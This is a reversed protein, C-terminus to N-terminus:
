AVRCGVIEGYGVFRWNWVEQGQFIIYYDWDETGPWTPRTARDERSPREDGHNHSHFMGTVVIDPNNLVMNQFEHDMAFNHEPNSHVNPIPILFEDNGGPAKIGQRLRVAFGCVEQFPTIQAVRLMREYKNM